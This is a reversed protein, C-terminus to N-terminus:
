DAEVPPTSVRYRTKVPELTLTRPPRGGCGAHPGGPRPGGGGGHQSAAMIPLVSVRRRTRLSAMGASVVVHRSTGREARLETEGRLSLHIVRRERSNMPQIPVCVMRKVKGCGGHREDAVEIRLLRDHTSRFARINSPMRLMEMTVHELALLLEARNSAAPRRGARYVEGGRGANRFRRPPAADELTYQVDIQQHGANSAPGDLRPRITSVSYQETM